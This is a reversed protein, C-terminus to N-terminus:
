RKRRPTAKPKVPPGGATNAAPAHRGSFMVRLEADGEITKGLEAALGEGVAVYADFQSASMWQEATSEQPFRGGSDQYAQLPKDKARLAAQTICSKVLLVRSRRGTSTHCVHVEGVVRKPVRDELAEKALNPEMGELRLDWKWGTGLSELAAHLDAFSWTPDSTADVAVILPCGREILAALGLNDDFGGDSVLVTADDESNTGLIERLADLPGFFRPGNQWRPDGTLRPNPLWMGMSANVLVLFGAAWTPIVNGGQTSAAAASIAAAGALTLREKYAATPAWGTAPGGVHLPTMEFRAVRRERRLSDTSAPTNVAGNIIQLPAGVSAGHCKDLEPTSSEPPTALFAREIARRWFPYLGFANRSLFRGALLVLVIALIAGGYLRFFLLGVDVEGVLHFAPGTLSDCTTRGNSGALRWTLTVTQALGCYWTGTLRDAVRAGPAVADIAYPALAFLAVISVYRLLARKGPLAWEVVRGISGLLVATFLYHGRLLATGLITFALGRWAVPKMAEFVEHTGAAKTVKAALGILSTVIALTGAGVVLLPLLEFGRTMPTRSDPKLLDELHHWAVVAHAEPFPDTAMYMLDVWSAAAVAIMVALALVTLTSAAGRLLSFLGRLVSLYGRSKRFRDQLAKFVEPDFLTRRAAEGRTALRNATATVATGLWGGGSVTSWYDFASLHKARNLASTFGLCVAASRIGGGSLALGIWPHPQEDGAFAVPPGHPDVARRRETLWAHELKMVTKIDSVPATRLTSWRRFRSAAFLGAFILATAGVLRVVTVALIDDSTWRGPEALRITALFVWTATFTGVLALIFRARRAATDPYEFQRPAIGLAWALPLTAYVGTPLDSPFAGVLLGATLLTIISLAPRLWARTFSKAPEISATESVVRVKM